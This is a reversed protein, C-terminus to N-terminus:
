RFGSLGEIDKMLISLFPRISTAPDPYRAKGFHIRVLTRTRRKSYQIGVPIFPLSFRSLVFRVMGAHGPGMENVYYTGEPFVVIGEGKRLCGELVRLSERTELPRRRNLPIGGLSRMFWNGVPTHFLDERAVYYLPRPAALSILPIDVWRRHKPLLVFAGRDPLNETGRTELRFFPALVLGATFRTTWFVGNRRMVTAAQAIFGDGAIVESGVAM